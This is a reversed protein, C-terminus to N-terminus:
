GWGVKGHMTVGGGEAVVVVAMTDDTDDGADGIVKDIADGVVRGITLTQGCLAPAVGRYHFYRPVVGRAKAAFNLLLTAQLPAHILLNPYFEVAEAYPRDYHIRHGNFTIASYRFLLTPDTAFKTPAELTPAPTPKPMAMPKTKTAAERYVVSQTEDIAGGQKGRYSHGMTIFCLQGSKGQKWDIGTIKTTKEVEEGMAFNQHFTVSGGAWMRRPLPVPPLFTGLKPHGDAGLGEGGVIPPALCWHVGLPAHPTTDFLSNGLTAQYEALLRPTITDAVPAQSRGLWASFDQSKTKAKTMVRDGM